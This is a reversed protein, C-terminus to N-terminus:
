RLTARADVLNTITSVIPGRKVARKASTMPKPPQRLAASCAEVVPSPVVVPEVEFPPCPPADDDVPPVVVALVDVVDLQELPPPGAPMRSRPVITVGSVTSVPSIRTTPSVIAQTAVEHAVVGPAVVAFITSVCPIM